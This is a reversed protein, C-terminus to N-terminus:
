EAAEMLQLEPELIRWRELLRLSLARDEETQNPLTTKSPYGLDITLTKGDEKARKIKLTAAVILDKSRLPSRGGLKHDIIDYIESDHSPHEYLSRLKDGWFKLKVVSVSTIRDEPSFDFDPKRKLPDFNVPRPEVRLPKVAESFFSDGFAEALANHMKAGGKAYVEIERADPDIAFIMEDVRHRLAMLFRNNEDVTMEKIPRDLLYLSLYTIERKDQTIPDRRIASFWDKEHPRTTPFKRANLVSDVFKQRATADVVTDCTFGAGELRFCGWQRGGSYRNMSAANVIKPLLQPHKLAVFFAAGEIGGDEPIEIGSGECVEDIATWGDDTAIESIVELEARLDDALNDPFATLAKEIANARKAEELTWEFDDPFEAGRKDFYNRLIEPSTSRFLRKLSKM